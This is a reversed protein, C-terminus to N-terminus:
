FEKCWDYVIVFYVNIEIVCLWKNVYFGNNILRNSDRSMM